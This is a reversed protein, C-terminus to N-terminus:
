ELEERVSQKEVLADYGASFSLAAELDGATKELSSLIRASLESSAGSATNLPALAPHMAATRTGLDQAGLDQARQWDILLALAQLVGEEVSPDRALGRDVAELYRGAQLSVAALAKKLAADAVRVLSLSRRAEAVRRLKERDGRSRERDAEALLAKTGMLTSALVLLSVPPLFLALPLAISLPVAGLACLVLPLFLSLLSVALGLPSRLLQFLRRRISNM